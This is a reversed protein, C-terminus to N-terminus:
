LTNRRGKPPLLRNVLTTYILTLLAVFLCMM